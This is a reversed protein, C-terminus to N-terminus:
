EDQFVAAEDHPVNRLLARIRRLKAARQPDKPGLVPRPRRWALDSEHLRRRVTERSVRVGYDEALLTVITGCTWRSRYFAFDRPSRLTVWQIVMVAWWSGAKRGPRASELVATIGGDLYRLRWRNITSTSTFLVGVILSWQWGDALLMLVHARLRREPDTGRRVEKLLVNREHTSIRISGDM